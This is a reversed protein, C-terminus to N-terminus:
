RSASFLHSRHQSHSSFWLRGRVDKEGRGQIQDKCDGHYRILERVNARRYMLIRRAVSSIMSRQLSMEAYRTYCLASGKYVWRNWSLASKCMFRLSDQVRVSRTRFRM